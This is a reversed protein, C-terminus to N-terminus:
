GWLYSYQELQSPMLSGDFEIVASGLHGVVALRNNELFQIYLGDETELIVTGDVHLSPEFNVGGAGCLRVFDIARQISESKAEAADEGDWGACLKGYAGIEAVVKEEPYVRPTLPAAESPVSTESQAFSYSPRRVTGYGYDILEVSASYRGRPSVGAVTANNLHSILALGTATMATM